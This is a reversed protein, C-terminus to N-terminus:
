SLASGSGTAEVVTGGIRKLEADIAALRQAKSEGSGAARLGYASDPQAAVSRREEALAAAYTEAPTSEGDIDPM